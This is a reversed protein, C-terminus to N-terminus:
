CDSLIGSESYFPGSPGEESQQKRAKKRGMGQGGEM